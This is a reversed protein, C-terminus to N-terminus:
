HSRLVLGFERQLGEVGAPTLTVARGESYRWIWELEFLRQLFAAGLAGALHPRRESWDLCPRALLRKGQKLTNIDLGFAHLKSFGHETLDFQQHNTAILCSTDLLWDALAVGVEGALHDYCTRAYRLRKVQESQKLSSVPKTPALHNMAELLQAVEHSALQYYRHRGCRAMTLLGGEVLKSLHASATQPTIHSARALEGAPLSRGSLLEFLMTARSSDGLLEAIAIFNPQSYTHPHSPKHV